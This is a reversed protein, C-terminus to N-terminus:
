HGAGARALAAGRDRGDDLRLVDLDAAAGGVEDQEDLLAGLQVAQRLVLEPAAVVAHQQGAVALRGAADAAEGAAQVLLVLDGDVDEDVVIGPAVVDVGDDLLARDVEGELALAHGDGLRLEDAEGADIGVAVAQGAVDADLEVVLVDAAGLLQQLVAPELLLVPLVLDLAHQAAPELVLEVGEGVLVEAVEGLGVQRPLEFFFVPQFIPLADHLSLSYAST